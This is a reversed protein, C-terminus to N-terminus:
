EQERYEVIDFETDVFCPTGDGVYAGAMNFEFYEEAEEYGSGCEMIKEIVKTRDYAVVPPQGFISALGIICDDYGDMTMM